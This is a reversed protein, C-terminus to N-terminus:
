ASRAPLAAGNQAFRETATVFSEFLHREVRDVPAMVEPHWQVGVVWPHEESVVGELVGDEAWAVESLSEAVADLGQHHHSNVPVHRREFVEALENGPDINVGHAPEARPRDRDHALRGEVDALHQELTGGLSVNLLQMGRCIALVPVNRELAGDLLSMEFEDRRRSVNNTRPHAEAGYLGPDVDGGGTLVLGVTDAPLDAEPDLEALVEVGEPIKDKPGLGHASMVVPDGGVQKLAHVYAIPIHPRTRDRPLLGTVVIRGGPGSTTDPNSM